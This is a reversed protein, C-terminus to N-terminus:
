IQWRNSNAACVDPEGVTYCVGLPCLFHECNIAQQSGNALDQVCYASLKYKNFKLM